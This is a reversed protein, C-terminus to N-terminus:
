GRRFLGTFEDYLWVTASGIWVPFRLVNWSAVRMRVGLFLFFCMTWILGSIFGVLVYVVFASFTREPLPFHAFARIFYAVGFLFFAMMKIRMIEVFYPVEKSGMAQREFYYLGMPGATLFAGAIMLRAIFDFGTYTLIASILGWGLGMVFSAPSAYRRFLRKFNDRTMETEGEM